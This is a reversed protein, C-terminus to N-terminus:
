SVGCNCVTYFLLHVLDIYIAPLVEIIELELIKIGFNSFKPDTSVQNFTVEASQFM